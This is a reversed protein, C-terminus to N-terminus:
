YKKTKYNEKKIGKSALYDTIKSLNDGKQRYTKWDNKDLVSAWGFADWDVEYKVLVFGKNEILWDVLKKDEHANNWVHNFNFAFDYYFGEEDKEEFLGEKIEAEITEAIMQTIDDETFKKEHELEVFESEECTGYGIKYRYM